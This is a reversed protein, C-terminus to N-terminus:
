KHGAVGSLIHKGDLLRAKDLLNAAFGIAQEPSFTIHGTRDRDLNVIVEGSAGRNPDAGVLLFGGGSSYNIEHSGREWWEIIAVVSDNLETPCGADELHGLVANVLPSPDIVPENPPDDNRTVM